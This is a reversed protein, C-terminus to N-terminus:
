DRPVSPRKLGFYLQGPIIIKWKSRDSSSAYNSSSEINLSPHFFFSFSPFVRPLSSLYERLDVVRELRDVM